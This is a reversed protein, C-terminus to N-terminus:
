DRLDCASALRVPEVKSDVELQGSAIERLRQLARETLRGREGLSEQATSDFSWWRKVIAGSAIRIGGSRGPEHRGASTALSSPAAATDATLSCHSGRV